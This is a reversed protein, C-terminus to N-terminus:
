LSKKEKLTALDIELGDYGYQWHLTKADLRNSQLTQNKWKQYERVQKVLELLNKVSAGPDHHGFVVHSIGERLAIDLGIQAASHGWNAKEVLEPLTYQADFYMLDTKQYLPLDPGLEERSFRTGETDVCHSYSLGDKEIKFGWCPDPHDLEYPTVQFEGISHPQRPLMKHFTIRAGLSDFPVPFFPKSFKMRISSELNEQVAYFHVRQHSKFIPAFFPIGILHDWHFHTLLIHHEQEEILHPMLTEGYRRLGSGGDVLLSMSSGQVQVCSTELGFGGVMRPDIERLFVEIDDFSSYGERFFSEMLLRFHSEWQQPTEGSPVSGRVGWFKIKFSM